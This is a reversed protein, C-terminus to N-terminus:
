SFSYHLGSKHLLPEFLFSEFMIKEALEPTFYRVYNKITSCFSFTNEESHPSFLLVDLIVRFYSTM